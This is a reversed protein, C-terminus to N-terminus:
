SDAKLRCRHKRRQEILSYRFRCNRYGGYLTDGSIDKMLAIHVVNVVCVCRRLFFSSLMEFIAESDPATLSMSCSSWHLIRYIKVRLASLVFTRNGTRFKKAIKGM